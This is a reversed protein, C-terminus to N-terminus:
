TTTSRKLCWDLFKAQLLSFIFGALVERFSFVFFGTLVVTCNIAGMLWAVRINPIFRQIILALTDFGLITASSQLCLGYGFAVVFAAVVVAIPLYGRWYVQTQLAIGHFLSFFGMYCIASIISHVTYEKGLFAACLILLLLTIGNSFVTVDLNSLKGLILSLSTVGGNIIVMPVTIFAYAASVLGVGFVIRLYSKM